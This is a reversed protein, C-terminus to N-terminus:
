KKEWLKILVLIVGCGIIWDNINNVVGGFHWYDRVYGLYIRDILNSIGGILILVVGWSFSNWFVWGLILVFFISLFILNSWNFSFSVGYNEVLFGRSGVIQHAGWM